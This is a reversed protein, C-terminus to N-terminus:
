VRTLPLHTGEPFEVAILDGSRVQGGRAIIGMVGALRVVNGAADTRAVEKLLGQQFANIQNCPNRLGTVVIAAAGLTLRTGVPLSLLDLGETTINEGLEGPRVTYGAQALDTFLEAHM